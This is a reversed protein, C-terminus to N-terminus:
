KSSAAFLAIFYSPVCQTSNRRLTISKGRFFIMLGESGLGSKLCSTFALTASAAPALTWRGGLLKKKPSLRVLDGVNLFVFFALCDYVWLPARSQCRLDGLICFVIFTVFVTLSALGVENCALETASLPSATSRKTRLYAPLLTDSFFGM